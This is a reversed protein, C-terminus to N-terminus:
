ILSSCVKSSQGLYYRPPNKASSSILEQLNWLFESHNESGPCFVPNITWGQVEKWPLSQCFSFLIEQPLILANGWLQINIDMSRNQQMASIVLSAICYASGVHSSWNALFGWLYEGGGTEAWFMGVQAVAWSTYIYIYLFVLCLCFMFIWIKVSTAPNHLTPSKSKKCSVRIQYPCHAGQRQCRQCMSKVYRHHNDSSLDGQFSFFM